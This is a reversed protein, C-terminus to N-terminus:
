PAGAFLHWAAALGGLTLLVSLVVVAWGSRRAQPRELGWGCDWVLHRVGNCLHYCFSFLLGGWILKAFGSGLIAQAREYAVPGQSLAFLWYVLLLSGASLAIGTLRHSISLVMTYM